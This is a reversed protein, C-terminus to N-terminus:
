ATNLQTSLTAHATGGTIFDWKAYNVKISDLLHHYICILKRGPYPPPTDKSVDYYGPNEM